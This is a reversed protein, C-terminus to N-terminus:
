NKLTTKISFEKLKQKYILIAICDKINLGNYIYYLIVNSYMIYLNFIIFFIAFYKIFYSILKLVIYILYLILRHAIFYLM